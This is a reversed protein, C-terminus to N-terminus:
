GMAGGFGVGIITWGSARWGDAAEGVELDMAVDFETVETVVSGKVLYAVSDLNDGLALWWKGRQSSYSRCSCYTCFAQGEEVSDRFLQCPYQSQVCHNV